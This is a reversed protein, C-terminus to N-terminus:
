SHHTTPQCNPCFFSSRGGQKIRKISTKCNLCPLKERQYVKFRSQYSGRGGEPTIYAEDKGSSGKYKIGENIVKKVAQYLRGIEKENLENSKRLPDLRAVFLAENAYINGVGAMKDQDMLLIKIPKRTSKVAKSFYEKTFEPSLIDVAKPKEPTKVLKIWGFKRIDNFFLASGDKFSIIIRTTKGPMKNSASFPIKQDFLANNKNKHFLLQGALKLHISLYLEKSLELSLIKGNRILATIKKGIVNKKDGIFQKEVLIEINSITKGVLDNELSRRITEVEPLEPM